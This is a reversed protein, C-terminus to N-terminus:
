TKLKSAKALVFTCISVGILPTLRQHHLRSDIDIEFRERALVELCPPMLENHVRQPHTVDAARRQEKRSKYWYLL